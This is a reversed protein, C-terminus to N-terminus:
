SRFKIMYSYKRYTKTAWYVALLFVVVCVLRLLIITSISRFKPRPIFQKISPYDVSPGRPFDAETSLVTRLGFHDSIFIKKFFSTYPLPQDAFINISVPFLPSRKGALTLVRDLRMRRNDFPLIMQIMSNKKSDWTYGEENGKLNIWVDEFGCEYVTETEDVGHLNLDGTILLNGTEYSREMLEIGKTTKINMASEDLGNKPDKLFQHVEKLQDKRLRAMKEGEYASLHLSGFCLPSKYSFLAFKRRHTSAVLFPSRSLIICDHISGHQPTVKVSSLYWSERIRQHNKLAELVTEEVENLGVIDFLNRGSIEDVIAEVRESDKTIRGFVTKQLKTGFLVNLHATIIQDPVEDDELCRVDGEEWKRGESDWYFCMSFRYKGKKFVESAEDGM